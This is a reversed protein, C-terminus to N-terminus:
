GQQLQMTCHQQATQQLACVLIQAQESCPQQSHLAASRALLVCSRLSIMTSELLLFLANIDAGAAVLLSVCEALESHPHANLFAMRHLLPVADEDGRGQVFAVPSGGADLYATLAQVSAGDKARDLL